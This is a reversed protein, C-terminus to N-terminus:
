LLKFTTVWPHKGYRTYYVRPQKDQGKPNIDCELVHQERLQPLFDTNDTPQKAHFGDISIQSPLPLSELELNPM